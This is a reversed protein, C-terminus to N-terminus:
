YRVTHLTMQLVLQGRSIILPITCPILPRPGFLVIKAYTVTSKRLICLKIPLASDAGGMSSFLGKM